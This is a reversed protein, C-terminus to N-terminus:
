YVSITTDLQKNVSNYWVHVTVCVDFMAAKRDESFPVWVVSIVVASIHISINKQLLFKKM